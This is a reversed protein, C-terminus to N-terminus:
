VLILKAKLGIKTNCSNVSAEQESRREHQVTSAELDARALGSPFTHQDRNVSAVGDRDKDLDELDTTFLNGNQHRPPVRNGKTRTEARQPKEQIDAAKGAIPVAGLM